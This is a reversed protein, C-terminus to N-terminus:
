HSIEITLPEKIDEAAIGLEKGAGTFLINWSRDDRPHLEVHLDYDPAPFASATSAYATSPSNWRRGVPHLDFRLVLLASFVLIETTAFQRGPCLTTGGGFGRFATPNIRQTGPMFRKHNFEDVTDGWIPRSTHQVVSPMMVTNGKKLLYKDDIRHDQMVLRVSTATSHMRMTEKFTSLLIPCASKVWTLDITSSGDAELRVGGSIENRIDNLVSPDSFIHYVMWFAGPLTNALIGHTGGVELRATDKLAIQFDNNIKVRAKVMESGHQYSGTEFYHEWVKVMYERARYSKRALLRPLLNLAFTMFGPEFMYWAQEMDADRFPNKPGYVAETTAMLLEHRIWQFLAVTKEKGALTNLSETMVQMSRRNMGHLGSGTSLTPHIYKSFSMLYGKHSTADRIIIENTAKSVGLVNAVIGTQVATFSLTRTQSQASLLLRPSNIVYIRSGPLRLTHIPLNYRDRMLRHLRTGKSLLGLVPTIFPISDCISQPESADQTFHLLALLLIYTAVAAGAIVPFMSSM